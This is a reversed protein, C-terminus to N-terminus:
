LAYRMITVFNDAMFTSVIANYYLQAAVYGGGWAAQHLLVNVATRILPPPHWYKKQLSKAHSNNYATQQLPKTDEDAISDINNPHADM